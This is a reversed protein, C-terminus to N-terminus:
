WRHCCCLHWNFVHARILWVAFRWCSQCARWWPKGTFIFWLSRVLFTTLPSQSNAAFRVVRSPNSMMKARCSGQAARSLAPGHADSCGPDSIQMPRDHSDHVKCCRHFFDHCLGIFENGYKKKFTSDNLYCWWFCGEQGMMSGDYSYVTSPATHPWEWCGSSIFRGSGIWIALSGELM